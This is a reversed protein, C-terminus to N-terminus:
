DAMERLICPEDAIHKLFLTLLKLLSSLALTDGSPFFIYLIDSWCEGAQSRATQFLIFLFTHRLAYSVNGGNFFDEREAPLQKANERLFENDRFWM